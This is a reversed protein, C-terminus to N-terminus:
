LRALAAGQVEADVVEGPPREVGVRRRQRRLHQVGGPRQLRELLPVADADAVEAV